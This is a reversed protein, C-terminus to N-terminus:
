PQSKAKEFRITYPCKVIRPSIDLRMLIKRGKKQCSWLKRIMGKRINFEITHDVTRKGVSVGSPPCSLLIEERSDFHYRLVVEKKQQNLLFYLRRRDDEEFLFLTCWFGAIALKAREPPKYHVM